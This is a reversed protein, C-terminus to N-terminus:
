PFKRELINLTNYTNSFVNLFKLYNLLYDTVLLLIVSVRFFCISKILLIELNVFENLFFKKETEYNKGNRSLWSKWNLIKVSSILFIWLNEWIVQSTLFKFVSFITHLNFKNIQNLFENCQQSIPFHNLITYM